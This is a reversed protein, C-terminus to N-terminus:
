AYQAYRVIRGAGFTFERLRDPKVNELCAKLYEMTVQGFIRGMEQGSYTSVNLDKVKASKLVEQSLLFAIQVSTDSSGDACTVIKVSNLERPKGDKDRYAFLGRKIADRHYESRAETM